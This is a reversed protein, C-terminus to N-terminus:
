KLRQSNVQRVQLFLMLFSEDIKFSFVMPLIGCILCGNRWRVINFVFKGLTSVVVKAFRKILIPEKGVLRGQPPELPSNEFIIKMGGEKIKAIDEKTLKPPRIDLLKTAFFPAFVDGKSEVGSFASEPANKNIEGIDTKTTTYVSSFESM